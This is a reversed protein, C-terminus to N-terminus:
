PSPGFFCVEAGRSHTTSSGASASLAAFAGIAEAQGKRPTIQGVMGPAPAGDLGLHGRANERSVKDPRFRELSVPNHVVEIRHKLGLAFSDAVHQSAAIPAGDGTCIVKRVIRGARSHSLVDRLHVATPPGGLMRAGAVIIGAQVTNAHILDSGLRAAYRRVTVAMAALEALARSKHGPRLKLSGETGWLPLTRIGLARLEQALPGDPCAVTPRVDRPLGALRDLLSRQAGSILSTHDVYLIRVPVRTVSTDVFHLDQQQDSSTLAGGRSLTDAGHGSEASAGIGGM